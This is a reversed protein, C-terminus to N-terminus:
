VKGLNKQAYESSKFSGDSNYLGTFTAIEASRRLERILTSVGDIAGALYASNRQSAKHVANIHGELDSPIGRPSTTFDFLYDQFKEQADAKQVNIDHMMEYKGDKAAAYEADLLAVLTLCIKEFDNKNEEQSM